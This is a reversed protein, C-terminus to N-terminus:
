LRRLNLQNKWIDTIIINSFSVAGNHNLHAMDKFLNKKLIFNSDLSYNLYCFGYKSATSNFVSDTLANKDTWYIPSYVLFLLIEKERCISAIENLYQISLTDLESFTENKELKPEIDIEGYVPVYGRDDAKRKKNLELNGVLITLLSSNYPYIASLLKQKEFNSRLEVIPRVERHTRYYPLLSSLREYGLNNKLIDSPNVDFIIIKPTYRKTLSLFTAYNFLLFNGDRGANYFSMGLSDEFVQPVYHHNARSSGFVIIDAKTSDMVYTTRFYLGSEQKFYLHELERGILQDILVVLLILAIIKLVFKLYKNRMILEYNVYHL